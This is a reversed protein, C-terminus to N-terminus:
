MAAKNLMSIQRRNIKNMKKEFLLDKLFVILTDFLKSGYCAWCKTPGSRPGFQKCPRDASKLITVALLIRYSYKRHRHSNM